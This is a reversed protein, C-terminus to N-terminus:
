RIEPIPPIGSEVLEKIWGKFATPGFKKARKSVELLKSDSLETNVAERIKAAADEVTDFVYGVQLIQQVDAAGTGQPSIPICGAGIAEILSLVIGKENGTYVYVKSEELLEPHDRVSSEFYRVNPPCLSMLHDFYEKSTRRLSPDNRGILLFQYDPLRAAIAFYRELNKNPVIRAAQVIQKKKPLRPRFDIRCPPLAMSSNGYGKSELDKLVNSGLAFFWDRDRSRNRWLIRNLVRDYLRKSGYVSSSYRLPGLGAPYSLIDGADYVFHFMRPRVIFPSSQTSFVVQADSNKFMREFRKVYSARQLVMLRSFSPKFEPIGTLNCEEIVQGLGYLRELESPLFSNTALTVRYGM